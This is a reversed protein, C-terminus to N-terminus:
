RNPSWYETGGWGQGANQGGTNPGTVTEAKLLKDVPAPTSRAVAVGCRVPHPPEDAGGSGDATRGDPVTITCLFRSLFLNDFFECKAVTGM